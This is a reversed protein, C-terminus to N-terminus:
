MSQTQSFSLGELGECDHVDAQSFDTTEMDAERFDCGTLAAGAFSAGELYAGQFDSNEHTTGDFVANEFGAGGASVYELAAGSFDSYAFSAENMWCNWLRVGTFNARCFSMGTFDLDKLLRGSFNAPVGGLHNGRWLTHLAHIAGLEAQTVPADPIQFEGGRAIEYAEEACGGNNIWEAAPLLEQSLYGARYNFMRAAIGDYEQDIQEFANGYERLQQRYSEGDDGDALDKALTLWDRLKGMDAGKISRMQEAFAQEVLLNETGSSGSLACRDFTAPEMKAGDFTCYEMKCRIFVSDGFDADTFDSNDFKCDSFACGRLVANRFDSCELGRDGSIVIGVLLRGSFDAPPQNLIAELEVRTVPKQKDKRM